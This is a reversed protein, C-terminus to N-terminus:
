FYTFLILKTLTARGPPKCRLPLSIEALLKLRDRLIAYRLSKTPYEGDNHVVEPLVPVLALVLAARSANNRVVASRLTDDRSFVSAIM